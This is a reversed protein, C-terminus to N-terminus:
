TKNKREAEYAREIDENADRADTNEVGDGAVPDEEGTADPLGDVDDEGTADPSGDVGDEGTADTNAVDDAEGDTAAATQAAVGDEGTADSVGEDAADPKEEKKKKRALQEMLKKVGIKEDLELARGLHSLAGDLDPTGSLAMGIAKHLKARVQDPMDREHTMAEVAILVDPAIAVANEKLAASAVEEAILTATDRKFPEPAVLNHALAYRAIRIAQPVAGVDISWVLITMVVDNQDGRDGEMVGEVYSVYEPLLERKLAIKKEISQIAKLRRKHDALLMRMRDYLAMSGKPGQDSEDRALTREYHRQAPTVPM